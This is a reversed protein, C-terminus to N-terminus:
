DAVFDELWTVLTVRNKGAEEAALVDEVESPNLGVYEKVEDITYDGPDYPMQEVLWSILSSRNKGAVEAEYMEGLQEPHETVYEQVEAVTHAAPDYGIAVEETSEEPPEEGGDVSQEVFRPTAGGAVVAFTYTGGAPTTGGSTGM